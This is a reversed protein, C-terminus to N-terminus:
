EESSHLFGRRRATFTCNRCSLNHTILNWDFTNDTEGDKVEIAGGGAFDTVEWGSLDNGNFLATGGGGTTGCGSGLAAILLGAFVAATSEFIRKFPKM